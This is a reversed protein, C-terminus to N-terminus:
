THVRGASDVQWKCGALAAVVPDHTALILSRGRAFSAIAELLRDRSADDLHATPEDLLLIPADSLFLRALAIRQAQGGSVGQGRQGLPTNLGHPALAVFTGLGAADLARHLEMESAHPRALRLNEAISGPALWPRQPILLLQRRLAEPPWQTLVRGGLQIDGEYPRLGALTELLTTKGSGSPGTLAVWEGPRVEAPGQLLVAARGPIPMHLDAILITAPGPDRDPKNVAAVPALDANMSDEGLPRPLGEFLEAIGAVAARANARDHYHAALQRMPLYVEPAMLLCFLAAELTLPTARLDILGLFTLGFYVALGAVGLAAFFELVASSLFAIRLVAMTRDSVEQSAQQVREAEARTRGHLKLTALGRVRDAFLGSLRALATAHHRGAAEAGWGVLAMFLPIAPVTLVLILAAIWDFGLLVACFVPPLVAAAAMAPLYRAFYGDLLEVQAAIADALEGSPRERSWLVGAALLRRFLAARVTCKVSEAAYQGAYEAGWVLVARLMVLLAAMMLLPLVPELGAREVVLLHLVRALAWAQPLLLLGSLLPLVIALGLPQRVAATLARMWAVQEPPLRVAVDADAAPAERTM